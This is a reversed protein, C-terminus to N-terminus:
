CTKSFRSLRAVLKVNRATWFVNSIAEAKLKINNRWCRLRELQGNARSVVKLVLKLRILYRKRMTPKTYNGAKNVTSKRKKTSM